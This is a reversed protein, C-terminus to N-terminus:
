TNKADIFFKFCENSKGHYPYKQMPTHDGINHFGSITPFHHFIEKFFSVPTLVVELNRLNQKKKQLKQQKKHQQKLRNSPNGVALKHGSGLTGPRVPGINM